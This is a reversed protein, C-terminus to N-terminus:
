FIDNVNSLQGLPELWKFLAQWAEELGGTFRHDAGRVLLMNGTEGAAAYLLEADRVPVVEDDTGHMILFPRPAIRRACDMVNWGALDTFFKKKVTTGGLLVQEEPDGATEVPDLAFGTFLELPRAVAAFTAV